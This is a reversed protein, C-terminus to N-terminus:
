AETNPPEPPANAKVAAILDGLMGFAKEMAQATTPSLGRALARSEAQRRKEKELEAKLYIALDLAEEYAHQLMDEEGSAELVTRGYKRVGVEQRKAIDACVLAEIGTANM